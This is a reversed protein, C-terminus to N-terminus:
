YRDVLDRCIDDQVIKMFRNGVGKPVDNILISFALVRESRTQVYGSLGSVGSIYGSKARVRGAYGPQTLRDRLSGDMGAVPLSRLFLDRVPASSTNMAVLMDVMQRVTIRNTSALGSGDAMSFGPIRTKVTNKLFRETAEAGGSFSGKGLIEAGLVKFVHDSISNDSEKNALIVALSLPTELRVLESSSGLSRAAGGERQMGDRVHIGVRELQSMLCRGFLLAGDRVPVRLEHPELGHSISGRLRIGGRDDPRLAGVSFTRTASAWKVENRLDYGDVEHRLSAVPHSGGSRGDVSITLCNGHISLASIPAAYPFDLDSLDWEPHVWQRDLFADDLVLAGDIRKVGKSKLLDALLRAADDVQDPQDRLTDSRLCPDGGGLLILDGQLTGDRNVLPGQENANAAMLRTAFVYDPGLSSLAAATSVLKLNSAPTRPVDLNKSFIPEGTEADAVAVSVSAGALIPRGLVQEVSDGLGLISLALLCLAHASM